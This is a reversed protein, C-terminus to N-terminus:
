WSVILSSSPSSSTKRAQRYAPARAHHLRHRLRAMRLSEQDPRLWAAAARLCPPRLWAVATRLCDPGLWAVATRSSPRTRCAGAARLWPPGSHAPFPCRQLSSGGRARAGRACPSPRVDVRAVAVALRGDVHRRLVQVQGGHPEQQVVAGRHLLGHLRVAAQGHPHNSAPPAPQLRAGTRRPVAARPPATTTALTVASYDCGQQMRNALSPAQM